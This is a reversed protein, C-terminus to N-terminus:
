LTGNRNCSLASRLRSFPDNQERTTPIPHFMILSMIFKSEKSFGLLEDHQHLTQLALIQQQVFGLSTISAHGMTNLADFYIATEHLDKDKLRLARAWM